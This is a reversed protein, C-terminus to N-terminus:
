KFVRNCIILGFGRELLRVVDGVISEELSRQEQKPLSDAILLLPCGDLVRGELLLLPTSPTPTETSDVESKILGARGFLTM